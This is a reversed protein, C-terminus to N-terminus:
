VTMIFAYIQMTFKPIKTTKSNKIEFSKIESEVMDELNYEYAPCYERFFKELKGDYIGHFTSASKIENEEVRVLHIFLLMTDYYIKENSINKSKQLDEEGYINRLFAHEKKILFDLYSIENGEFEIGKPSVDLPFNCIYCATEPTIPHQRNYEIALVNPINIRISKFKYNFWQTLIDFAFKLEINSMEAIANKSKKSYANLVAGRLQESTKLNRMALQENTLCSADGLEDLSHHYGRVVVQRELQLKPHWAFALPYSVAFMFKNEPNLCDSTPATTEFDAYVCLPLDCRSELGCGSLEYVFM